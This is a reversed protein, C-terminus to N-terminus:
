GDEPNLVELEKGATEPYKWLVLVAVIMPGAALLALAPGIQGDLLDSLRGAVLLGVASGAVGVTTIVGNSRGRSQTGFLEPGYVALAPVAISGLLVGWLSFLWLAAGKAFFASATLGAGLVLGTAGVRRRGHRDALQGGVFIGIGAPTNTALTFVAIATASYDREDKLFDNRLGSAPAAFIALLFASAALLRLRRLRRAEAGSGPDSSASSGGAAADDADSTDAADNTNNDAANAAPGSVRRRDPSAQGYRAGAILFRRSEPLRRGAWFLVAGGALPVLYVIRWARVDADAIPLVWVAIGSGLGACLVLVSISWARSKAPMEEAAFVFILIGLATSLGRAVLQSGGLFWLGPSAAGLVTFACSGIGAALLLRRRGQRDALTVTVLAILVGARVTALVIGQATNDRGFEEAAFTITQTLVTGLYGDVVQVTCLLALITACRADIRDPPAWWYRYVEQRRMLARRVPWYFLWGWAPVALRYDITETLEWSGDGRTPSSARGSAPDAEHTDAGLAVDAEDNGTVRNLSLRREYRSFPGDIAEFHDADVAREAVIDNRPKRRRERESHLQSASGNLTVRVTTM